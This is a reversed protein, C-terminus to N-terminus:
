CCTRCGAGTRGRRASQAAPLVASSGGLKPVFANCTHFNWTSQAAGAFVDSVPGVFRVVAANEGAHLPPPAHMACGLVVLLSSESASRSMYRSAYRLKPSWSDSTTFWLTM